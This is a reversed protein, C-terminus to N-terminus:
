IEKRKKKLVLLISAVAIPLLISLPLFDGYEPISSTWEVQIIQYGACKSIKVENDLTATINYSKLGTSTETHQFSFLGVPDTTTVSTGDLYVEADEVPFSNHVFVVQGSLTIYEGIESSIASTQVNRVELDTIAVLLSTMNVGVNTTVTIIDIGYIGYSLPDLQWM